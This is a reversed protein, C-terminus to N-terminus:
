IKEIRCGNLMDETSQSMVINSMNATDGVSIGVSVLRYGFAMVFDTQFAWHGCCSQIADHSGMDTVKERGIICVNLLHLFFVIPYAFPFLGVCAVPALWCSRWM